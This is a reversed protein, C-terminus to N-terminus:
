IGEADRLANIQDNTVVVSPLAPFAVFGPVPASPRAPAAAVLGTNGGTENAAVLFDANIGPTTQMTAKQFVTPNARM